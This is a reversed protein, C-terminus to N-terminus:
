SQMFNITVSFLPVTFGSIIVDMIILSKILMALKVGM